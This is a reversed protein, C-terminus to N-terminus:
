GQRSGGTADDLIYRWLGDAGKAVVECSVNERLASGDPNLVRWAVRMLATEGSVLCLLTKGSLKFPGAFGRDFAASIAALGTATTVGDFTHVADPAYLQMLAAKDRANYAAEFTATMQEPITVAM